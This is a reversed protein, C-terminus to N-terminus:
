DSLEAITKNELSVKLDKLDLTNPNDVQKQVNYTLDVLYSKVQEDSGEKLLKINDQVDYGNVHDLQSIKNLVKDKEKESLTTASAVAVMSLIALSLVIKKM